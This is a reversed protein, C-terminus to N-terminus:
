KENMERTHSGPLLCETFRVKAGHIPESTSNILQQPKENLGRFDIFPCLTGDKKSVSLFGVGALSSNPSILGAALSEHIYKVM